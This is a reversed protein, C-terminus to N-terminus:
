DVLGRLAAKRKDADHKEGIASGIAPFGAAESEDLYCWACQVDAPHRGCTDPTITQGPRLRERDENSM